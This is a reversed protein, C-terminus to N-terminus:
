EFVVEIAHTIALGPTSFVFDRKAGKGARALVRAAIDVEPGALQWQLDEVQKGDHLSRLVVALTEPDTWKQAYTVVGNPSIVYTMNPWAGYARHASGGLDDVVMIRNEDEELRTRKAQGIKQEQSTHFGFVDGPHAERVYLVLFIIDEYHSALENMPDIKSVYMPCTGSGTELVVTKGLFDSLNVPKGDLGTAQFDIAPDGAVPGDPNAKFYQANTFHEYNYKVENLLEWSVSLIVLVLAVGLGAKVVISVVKGISM